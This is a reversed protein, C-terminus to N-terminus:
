EIIYRLSCFMAVGAKIWKTDPYKSPLEIFQVFNTSHGTTSLTGARTLTKYVPCNYFTGPAEPKRDKEPKLWIQSLVVCM